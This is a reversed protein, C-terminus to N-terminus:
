KGEERCAQEFCVPVRRYCRRCWYHGQVPWMPQHGLIACGLWQVVKAAIRM